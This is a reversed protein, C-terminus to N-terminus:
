FPYGYPQSLLYILAVVGGIGSGIRLNKWIKQSKIKKAEKRYSNAYKENEM